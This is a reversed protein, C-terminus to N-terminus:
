SREPPDCDSEELLPVEPPDDENDASPDETYAYSSYADYYYYRRFAGASVRNFVIGSVDRMERLSRVVGWSPSIGARVVFVVMDAMRRLLKADIVPMIPTGDIVIVEYSDRAREILKFFSEQTLLPVPNAVLAGAPMLTVGPAIHRLCQDIEAKGRILESLGPRQAVHFLRHQSGRRLDADILLVRRGLDTALALALNACTVSKGDGSQSSTVMISRVSEAAIFHPLFGRYQEAIASEPATRVVLRWDVDEPEEVGDIYIKAKEFEPISAFVPLGLRRALANVSHFAPRRLEAAIVFLLAVGLAAALSGPIITMPDPSIPTKPVSAPRLLRFQEAMEAEELNRALSADHQNGLLMHYSEKLTEYDRTLEIMAQENKPAEEVREQLEQMRARIKKEDTRHTSLNFEIEEIERTLLPDQSAVDDDLGADTVGELREIQRILSQVNPHDETYIRRAEILEESATRLTAELSSPVAGGFEGDGQGRLLQRQRALREQAELNSARAEDLRELERLNAELQSPLAGLHEMRFIRVREEQELLETRVRDLEVELFHATSEAQRAREKRNEAIFLDSIERVIDRAVQPDAGYYTLEVVAVASKPKSRVNVAINARIEGMLDEPSQEGSPDLRETGIRSILETLNAHGTARQRLTGIRDKVDLTITSRVYSQPVGQPEVLFSTFAAYRRPLAAWLALGIVLGVVAGIILWRRRRQVIELIDEVGFSGAQNDYQTAM